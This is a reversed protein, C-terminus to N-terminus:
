AALAALMLDFLDTDRYTRGSEVGAGARSAILAGDHRSAHAPVGHSGKVLDANLPIGKTRPDFFLEVPDYGPKRHIDVTRAFAPAAADDLWWYYALWRDEDSILVVEGSRPHDLGVEARRSGAFVGSIGPTREFIRAIEDIADPQAYVHAFQHDVLAFARSGAFDIVEGDDTTRTRLLGAKRLIRNPHVAGSVPTMVYESAAIIVLEDYYPQQQLFADFRALEADLQRVADAAQPSDPGLKQGAYDLHPLYIFHFNPNHRAILWQAGALIWQTSGIGALPGWYQHLPFHGLDAVLQEYLGDPKSYCWLKTTGDPEHIPAPTVVFDAAADKINQAHWVAATLGTPLAPMRGARVAPMKGARKMVGWIQPAEIVENRGVWFEVEHRDRHYFGNGIVGHRAPPVGTLMSAQVPSTVCPFTPRIRALAGRRAWRQLTPAREGTVDEPRLGPISLVLVHSTNRM